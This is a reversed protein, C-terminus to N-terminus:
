CRFIQAGAPCIDGFYEEFFGVQFSRFIKVAAVPTDGAIVPIGGVRFYPSMGIIYLAAHM